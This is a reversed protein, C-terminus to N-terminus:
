EEEWDGPNGTRNIYMKNGIPKRLGQAPQTAETKPKYGPGAMVRLGEIEKRRNAAKQALVEPKDGPQPFYQRQGNAFESDDIKAGSELRLVANIFDRQAQMAKQTNTDLMSNVGHGVLPIGEANKAASLALPSFGTGIENIIKDAEEARDGFIVAKGQGETLNPGRALENQKLQLEIAKLKDQTENQSQQMGLRQRDMNLREADNTAARNANSAALQYNLAQFPNQKWLGLLERAKNEDGGAAWLAEQVGNPLDPNNLKDIKYGLLQKNMENDAQYNEIQADTLRSQRDDNALQRELLKQKMAFERLRDTRDFGANIGSAFGQAMNKIGDGGRSGMANLGAMLLGLRIPDQQLDELDLLGAM